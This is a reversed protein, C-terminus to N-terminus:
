LVWSGKAKSIRGFRYTPYSINTKRERFFNQLELGENERRLTLGTAKEQGDDVNGDKTRMKSHSSVTFSAGRKQGLHTVHGM